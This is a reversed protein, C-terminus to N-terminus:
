VHQANIHAQIIEDGEILYNVILVYSKVNAVYPHSM